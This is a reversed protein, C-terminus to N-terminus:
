ETSKLFQKNAKFYKKAFDCLMYNACAVPTFNEHQEEAECIIKGWMTIQTVCVKAECKSKSGGLSMLKVYVIAEWLYRGCLYTAECPCRGWMCMQRVYVNAECLCRGRMFKQKEHRSSYNPSWQRSTSRKMCNNIPHSVAPTWDMVISYSSCYIASSAKHM